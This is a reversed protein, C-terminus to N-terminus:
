YYFFVFYTNIVKSAIREKTQWSVVKWHHEVTVLLLLKPEEVRVSEYFFFFNIKLVIGRQPSSRFCSSWGYASRLAVSVRLLHKFDKRTLLLKSNWHVVLHPTKKLSNSKLIKQWKVKVHYQVLETFRQYLYSFEQIM